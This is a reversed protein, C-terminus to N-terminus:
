AGMSANAETVDHFFRRNVWLQEGGLTLKGWLKGTLPGIPSRPSRGVVSKPSSPMFGGAKLSVIGRDTVAVIRYGGKVILIWYSVIAWYPSATQAMFVHQIQEGPELMPQVREKLKDRLAM